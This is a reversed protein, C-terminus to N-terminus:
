GMMQVSEQPVPRNSLEADAIEDTQLVTKKLEKYAKHIKMFTAQKPQGSFFILLSIESFRAQDGGHDPHHLQALEYYSTTIESNQFMKKSEWSFILM